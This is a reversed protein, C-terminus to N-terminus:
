RFPVQLYAQLLGPERMLREIAEPERPVFGTLNESGDATVVVTDEV